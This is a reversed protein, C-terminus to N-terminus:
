CRRGSMLWFFLWARRESIGTLGNILGLLISSNLPVIDGVIFFILFLLVLLLFVLTSNLAYSVILFSLSIPATTVVSFAVYSWVSIRSGVSSVKIVYSSDIVAGVKFM